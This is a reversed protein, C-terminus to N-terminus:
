LTRGAERRHESVVELGPPSELDSHNPNIQPKFQYDSMREIALQRLEERQEETWQRRRKPVMIEAVAEFHDAPFTYTSGDDGDQAIKTFPLAKVRNSIPGRIRMSAALLNRGWPFIHGNTCAVLQLWPEEGRAGEGREAYYSEEYKVKYRDGYLAKLNPCEDM